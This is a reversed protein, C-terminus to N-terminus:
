AYKRYNNKKDRAMSTNRLSKTVTEAFICESSYVLMSIAPRKEEYPCIFYERMHAKYPNDITRGCIDCVYSKVIM